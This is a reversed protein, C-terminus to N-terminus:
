CKNIDQTTTISVSASVAGPYFDPQGGGVAITISGKEVM